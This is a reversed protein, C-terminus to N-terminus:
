PARVLPGAPRGMEALRARLRRRRWVPEMVKAYTRRDPTHRSFAGFEKDLEIDKVLGDFADYALRMQWRLYEDLPREPMDALLEDSVPVYMM